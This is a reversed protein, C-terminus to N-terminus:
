GKKSAEEAEKQIQDLKEQQKKLEEEILKLRGIETKIADFDGEVKFSYNCKEILRAEKKLRKLEKDEKYTCKWQNRQVLTVYRPAEKDDSFIEIKYGNDPPTNIKLLKPDKKKAEPDLMLQTLVV